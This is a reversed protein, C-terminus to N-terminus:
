IVRKIYGSIGKLGAPLPAEPPIFPVEPGLAMLKIGLDAIGRLESLRLGERLVQVLSNHLSELAGPNNTTWQFQIGLSPLEGARWPMVSTRPIGLFFLYRTKTLVMVDGEITEVKTLLTMTNDRYASAM